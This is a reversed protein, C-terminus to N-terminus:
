EERQMYKKETEPYMDLVQWPDCYKWLDIMNLKLLYIEHEMVDRSAWIIEEPDDDLHFILDDSVMEEIFDRVDDNCTFKYRKMIAGM